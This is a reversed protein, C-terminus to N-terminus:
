APVEFHSNNNSNIIELQFIKSDLWNENTRQSAWLYTGDWALDWTGESTAYIWGLRRGQTDYKLIRGGGPVWFNEGDWALGGAGGNDLHISNVLSGTKTMQYIDPSIWGMVNLYKGDWALGKCGGMNANPSEFSFIIARTALDVKFLKREAFDVLWMYGEDDFTMGWPQTPTGWTPSGALVFDEMISGNRPDLKYIHGWLTCTWIYKGDWALSWTLGLGEGIKRKIRRTEDDPYVYMYADKVPDGPIYGLTHSINPQFGLNISLPAIYSSSINSNPAEQPCILGGRNNGSKLNGIQVINDGEGVDMGCGLNDYVGVGLARLTGCDDVSLGNELNNHVLSNRIEAISNDIHIGNTGSRWVECHDMIINNSQEAALGNYGNEYMQCYELNPKCFSEFYIGEWNNWRFVCHSIKPSSQWVNLGQQGFEFVCYCFRSQGTPSYLRVMSWDGNRPDAADSTFYIPQDPTGEAIIAGRVHLGLRQDPERYGRYHKFRLHTGPLLTLTVGPQVEVNSTILVDGKWTTNKSVLGPVTSEARAPPARPHSGSCNGIQVEVNDVYVISNELSEFSAYGAPPPTPDNVGVIGMGDLFVDVYGEGIVILAEHFVSSAIPVAGGGLEQFSKGQQRNITVGEPGFSVFYRTHGNSFSELVNAHLRSESGELLFRFRLSSINGQYAKLRAFGHGTGRLGSGEKSQTWTWIAPDLEWGDTGNLFNFDYVHKSSSGALSSPIASRSILVMPSRDASSDGPINYVSDNNDNAASDSSAIAAYLICHLLIPLLLMLAINTRIRM